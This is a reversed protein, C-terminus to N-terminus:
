KLSPAFEGTSCSRQMIAPARCCGVVTHTNRVDIALLVLASRAPSWNPRMAGSTRPITASTWRHNKADVIPRLM